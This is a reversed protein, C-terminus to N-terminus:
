GGTAQQAAYAAWLKAVPMRTGEVQALAERAGSLDGAGILAIGLRTLVLNRDAGALALGKQYFGAAKAHESYSLFADGAAVVTRYTASAGNADRELAPLEARDTAIRGSAIKLQEEVFSDSGKPIVGRAHAQDIVDKVEKPLRRADAAEIYYIYENKDQITDLQKSLRLLDLMVPADFDNLNRTLNVADRWNEPQPNDIVWASVFDYVQPVIQNSYAVSIGRRYWRTDVEQGQAKRQAIADSLYQLGEVNRDESFYLEAMNMQLDSASVNAATYNLDMARQLYTRAKDYQKLSAALQFAVLNFRPTETPQVKGSALMLEVGKFQFAEDKASIGTNFIMGGLAIQEDPSVALPLLGDLQAKIANPDAGPAKSAAEIAQYGAVFEKSYAPKAAAKEEEKKKDRKQAYAADAFGPVALVATGSALALALALQRAVGSSPRRPSSLNIVADELQYAAGCGVPQPVAQVM